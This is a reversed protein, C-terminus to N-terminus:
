KKDVAKVDPAKPQATTESVAPKESTVVAPKPQQQPKPKLQCACVGYLAGSTLAVLLVLMKKM